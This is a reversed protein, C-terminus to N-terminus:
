LGREFTIKERGRNFERLHCLLLYPHCLHHTGLLVGDHATWILATAELLVTFLPLLRDWHKWYLGGDRTDDPHAPSGEGVAVTRLWPGGSYDGGPADPPSEGM